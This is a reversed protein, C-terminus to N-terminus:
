QEPAGKAPNGPPIMTAGSSRAVQVVRALRAALSDTAMRVKTTDVPPVALVLLLDHFQQEASLVAEGLERGGPPHLPRAPGWYMEIYEQRSVYLDLATRQAAQPDAAAHVSLEKTGATIEDVWDELGGPPTGAAVGAPASGAGATDAVAERAGGREGCAYGVACAIVAAMTFARPM